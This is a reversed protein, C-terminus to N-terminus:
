IGQSEGCLNACQALIAELHQARNCILTFGGATALPGRGVLMADLGTEVWMGSRKLRFLCLTGGHRRPRPQFVCRSGVGM